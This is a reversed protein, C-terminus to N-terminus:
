LVETDVMKLYNGDRYFRFLVRSWVVGSYLHSVAKVPLREYSSTKVHPPTCITTNEHLFIHSFLIKAM